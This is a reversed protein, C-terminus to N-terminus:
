TQTPVGLARLAEERSGTTKIIKDFGIMKFIGLVNPLLSSVVLEGGLAEIRKAVLLFVKLGASNVYQLAACDIVIRRAGLTILESLKQELAPASATDLHDDITLISVEGSREERIQM